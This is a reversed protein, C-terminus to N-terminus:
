YSGMKKSKGKSKAGTKAVKMKATMPKKGDAMVKGVTSGMKPTSMKMGHGGKMKAM